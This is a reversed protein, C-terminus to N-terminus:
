GPRVTEPSWAANPGADGAGDAVAVGGPTATVNSAATGAPLDVRLSVRYLSKAWGAGPTWGITSAGTPGGDGCTGDEAAAGAPLTYAFFFTTPSRGAVTPWSVATQGTCGDVATKVPLRASTMPSVGDATYTVSTVSVDRLAAPPVELVRQADLGTTWPWTLAETVDSSCPRAPNVGVRVTSSIGCLYPAPVDYAPAAAAAGAPLGVCGRSDAETPSSVPDAIQRTPPRPLTPPPRAASAGTGGRAAAALALLLCSVAAAAPTPARRGGSPVM